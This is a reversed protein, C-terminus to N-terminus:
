GVGNALQSSTRSGLSCRVILGVCGSADVSVESCCQWSTAFFCCSWTRQSSRGGGGLRLRLLSLFVLYVFSLVM